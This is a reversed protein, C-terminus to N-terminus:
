PHLMIANIDIVDEDKTVLGTSSEERSSLLMDQVFVINTAYKPFCEWVSLTNYEFERSSGLEDQLNWILYSRECQIM